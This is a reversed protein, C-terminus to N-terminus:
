SRGDARHADNMLQLIWMAFAPDDEGASRELLEWHAPAAMQSDAMSWEAFFREDLPWRMLLRVDEHRDDATLRRWMADLSGPEGELLQAFTSGAWLLMGTLGFAPNNRHATELIDGVIRRTPMARARSTYILAEM